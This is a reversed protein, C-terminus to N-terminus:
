FLLKATTMDATSMRVNIPYDILNSVVTLCVRHKEEKHLLITAFTRGYTVKRGKTINYFLIFNIKQTGYKM